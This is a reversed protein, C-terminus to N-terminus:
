HHASERREAALELEHRVAERSLRDVADYYEDDTIDGDLYVRVLRQLEAAADIEPFTTAM